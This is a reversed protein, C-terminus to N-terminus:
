RRSRAGVSARSRQTSAWGPRGALLHEVLVDEQPGELLQVIPQVSGSAVLLVRAREARVLVLVAAYGDLWEITTADLLTEDRARPVEESRLRSRIRRRWARAGGEQEAMSRALVPGPAHYLHGPQLLVPPMQM